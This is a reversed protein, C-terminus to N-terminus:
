HRKTVRTSWTTLHVFTPNPISFPQPEAQSNGPAPSCSRIQPICTSTGLELHIQFHSWPSPLSHLPASQRESKNWPAQSTICIQELNLQEPSGPVKEARTSRLTERNRSTLVKQWRGASSSKRASRIERDFCLEATANLAAEPARPPHLATVEERVTIQLSCSHM